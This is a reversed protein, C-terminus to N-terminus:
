LWQALQQAFYTIILDAGARKIASTVEIVTRQEDLYGLSAAARIASYEGSVQYAALPADFRRRIDAIIDLYAGAPKVMLIDAGEALDAAAEQAAQRPSRYDMQYTRRDGFQPTSGAADRFPGYLCSAFKVSYSMIATMQFDGADLASRIAQVQGDMMASPAVIDAGASAHSLATKALLELTADNDVTAHADQGHTARADQGHTAHADQGHTAHADQGHTAHADQGHTAHADKGHTARADQGHTAHADQGHTAHADQGHTAHADQGHTARADQGHDKPPVSTKIVGCHGHETYECLCVDTVVLMHPLSKKIERTLRQVAAQANWAESGVADKRDPIGFLLVAVIGLDSWQRVTEMATDVSYQYVGPMSPIEDRLARGERVFLPAILEERRLPSGGLMDRLTANHRLRRLRTQPFSM